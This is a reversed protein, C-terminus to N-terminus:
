LLDTFKKFKKTQRNEYWKKLEEGHIWYKEMFKITKNETEVDWELQDKFFSYVQDAAQSFKKDEYNIIMEMNIIFNFGMQVAVADEKIAEEYNPILIPIQEWEEQIRNLGITLKEKIDEIKNKMEENYEELLTEFLEGIQFINSNKADIYKEKIDEIIVKFGKFESNPNIRFKEFLIKSFNSEETFCGSIFEIYENSYQELKYFDDGEEDAEIPLEIVAWGDEVNVVELGNGNSDKFSVLISTKTVTTTM